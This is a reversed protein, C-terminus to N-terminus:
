GACVFFCMGGFLMEDYVRLVGDGEWGGGGGWTVGGEGCIRLPTEAEEVGEHREHSLLQPLAKRAAGGSGGDPGAGGDHRRGVWLRHRGPLVLSQLSVHCVDICEDVLSPFPPPPTCPVVTRLGWLVCPSSLETEELGGRGEGGWLSVDWGRIGREVGWV